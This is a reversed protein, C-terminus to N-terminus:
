RRFLCIGYYLKAATLNTLTLFTSRENACKRAYIDYVSVEKNAPPLLLGVGGGEELEGLVPGDLVAEGCFTVVVVAGGPVVLGLLINM